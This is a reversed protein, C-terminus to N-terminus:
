QDLAPPTDPRRAAIEQVLDEYRPLRSGIDVERSIAAMVTLWLWLHLRLVDARSYRNDWSARMSANHHAGLMSYALLELSVPLPPDGPKRLSEFEDVITGVVGRWAQEAMTRKEPGSHSPEANIQALVQSGFENARADAILRLMLREGPDNSEKVKHEVDAMNWDLFTSFSEVFLQLKSPFHSYFVQSTIGLRRVITAVHTGKYGKTAFEETAVRLIARRVRESEQGALDIQSREARALDDALTSRIEKLSYGAQKMEAIRQLLAVHDQTYLARSAATKQPRPLLGERVYFHITARSVGTETELASISLAEAINRGGSLTSQIPRSRFVDYGLFPANTQGNIGCVAWM